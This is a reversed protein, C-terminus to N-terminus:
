NYENNNKLMCGAGAKFNDLKMYDINWILLQQIFPKGNEEYGHAKTILFIIYLILFIRFM